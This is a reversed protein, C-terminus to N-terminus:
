SAFRLTVGLRRGDGLILDLPRPQGTYLQPQRGAAVRFYRQGTLNTGWLEISFRGLPLTLRADLLTRRGYSAGNVARDFVNDQFNAGVRLVTGHFAKGQPAITLSGAWTLKSARLLLNGAIDPVLQGPNFLSPRITCFTSTPNGAAVGCFVTSGPDESGPKFRPDSYALAFDIGLWPRPQLSAALEMGWTKVGQTNRTVLANVGPSTSLGLIQTDRWDIHFGTLQMSRLLGRGQFKVGLESTWNTEPEFTQEQAILNPTANIGGSRSGRAQSAYILWSASPRFEASFRPTLDFFSRAPLAKGFSAAFNGIRSDISVREWNARVEGRLSLRPALKWDATAFLALTRRWEVVDSQVTQSANPDDALAANIAALAGVRAPNALVLSTFRESGALNGREAGFAFNTRLGQRTWFAAAGLSWAIRRNGESVVRFEQAIERAPMTHRQVINVTQLRFVSGGANGSSPCSIGVICVGYLEGTASGDFDRFTDAKAAYYSTDSRLQVGVLDLSLHLAIQGSWTWSDPVGASLGSSQDPVPAVGCLYSWVGSALDRGGCNYTRYDFSTMAPQGSRSEGYRGSLRVSLPGASDRTAITGALAFTERNGLHQSPAAPNNWTGQSKRWSGAFRLKFTGGLPGSLAAKVGLLGDTGADTSGLAMWQETPLAPVYHVLGAFSSHGFLASQPGFVVEIRQLDLPEADIADRDTQYVGDIFMGVSDGAVSPQSQGRMIPYSNAGGWIAEFTLGPVRAALSQLDAVAGAGMDSAPISAINLPVEMAREDSRRATVVISQGDEAETARVPLPALLPAALLAVKLRNGLMAIAM